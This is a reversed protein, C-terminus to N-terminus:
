GHRLAVTSCSRDPSEVTRDADAEPRPAPSRVWVSWPSSNATRAVCIGPPAAEVPERVIIRANLLTEVLLRRRQAAPHLWGFYRVRHQGPPLIHQLYRRMFEGAALTVEGRQGTRSDTYSFRVSRDDAQLIREDSIAAHQVYRALYRVVNEGSGAPQFDIWWGKHWASEPIQAHLEPPPPACPGDMARRLVAIVADGPLLWDSKRCHRWKKRDLSLGGGPIIFHLHPHFQLQRGSTHLVGLMGLEAALQRPRAAVTQLAAAAHTFFLDHLLEPSALFAPRLAEPVTCTVLFYPVPLLRATQKRTWEATKAGGCRPCARHHCSHFAHHESSCKACRYRHGGMAPTRCRRIAHLARRQAPLLDSRRLAAPAQRALWDALVSM